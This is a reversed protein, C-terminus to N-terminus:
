AYIRSGAQLPKYSVLWRVNGTDDPIMLQQLNNQNAGTSAVVYFTKGATKATIRGAELSGYGANLNLSM